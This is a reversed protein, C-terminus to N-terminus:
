ALKRQIAWHALDLRNHLRTKNLMNSVHSEITRQSVKMREAIERNAMGQALWQLVKLETPTLEVQSPVPLPHHEAAPQPHFRLLRSAQALCSAVQAMLDEPEFPKVMYVDAGTNLGQVQDQHQGKASLFLVPIWRMRPDQRVQNILIYGDMEPMTIDCIILDPADTELRTLAAQGNEATVVEYGQFELYDKLLLIFDPDIEVLLLRHGAKSAKTPHEKM